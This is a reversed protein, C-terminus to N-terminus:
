CQQRETNRGPMRRRIKRQQDCRAQAKAQLARRQEIAERHIRVAKIEHVVTETDPQLEGQKTKRKESQGLAENDEGRRQGQAPDRYQRNLANRKAARSM